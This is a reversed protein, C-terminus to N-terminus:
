LAGVALWALLERGAERAVGKAMEKGIDIVGANIREGLATIKANQEILPTPDSPPAPGRDKLLAILHDIEDLEEISVPAFAPGQNHGIGIERDRASSELQHRLQDVSSELLAVRAQLETYRTEPTDVAAGATENQIYVRLDGAVGTRVGQLGGY